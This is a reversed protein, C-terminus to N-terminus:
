GRAIRSRTVRSQIANGRLECWTSTKRKQTTARSFTSGKSRHEGDIISSTNNSNVNNITTQTGKPYLKFFLEFNKEHCIKSWVEHGEPTSSWSFAGGIGREELYNIKSIYRGEEWRDDLLVLIRDVVEKPYGAICGKYGTTPKSTTSKPYVAYFVDYKRHTLVESWFTHKEPTQSWNFGGDYFGATTYTYLAEINAKNGAAVQRKMYLEEIEPPFKDVKDM